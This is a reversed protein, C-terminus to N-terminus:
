KYLGMCSQCVTNGNTKVLDIEKTGYNDIPANISRHIAFASFLLLSFIILVRFLLKVM